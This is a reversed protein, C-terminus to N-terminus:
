EEEDHLWALVADEGARELGATILGDMAADLQRLVSRDDDNLGDAGLQSVPHAPEDATVFGHATFVWGSTWRQRHRHVTISHDPELVVFFQIPEGRESRLWIGINHVPREGDRDNVWVVNGPARPQLGVEHLDPEVGLVTGARQAIARLEPFIARDNERPHAIEWRLHDGYASPTPEVTPMM